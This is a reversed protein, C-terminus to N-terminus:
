SIYFQTSAADYCIPGIIEANWALRRQRAEISLVVEGREDRGQLRRQLCVHLVRRLLRRLDMRCIRERGVHMLRAAGKLREVGELLRGIGKGGIGELEM